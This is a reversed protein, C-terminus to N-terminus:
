STLLGASPLSKESKSEDVQTAAERMSNALEQGLEHAGQRASPNSPLYRAFVEKLRDIPYGRFSGDSVPRLRFKRLRAALAGAPSSQVFDLASADIVV